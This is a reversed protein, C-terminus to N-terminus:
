CLLVCLNSVVSVSFCANYFWHQCYIYPVNCSMSILQQWPSGASSEGRRHTEELSGRRERLPTQRHTLTRAHTAPDWASNTSHQHHPHILVVSVCSTIPGCGQPLVPPSIGSVVHKTQYLSYRASFPPPPAQTNPALYLSTALGDHLFSKLFVLLSTIHHLLSCYPPQGGTLILMTIGTFIESWGLRAVHRDPAFNEAFRFIM